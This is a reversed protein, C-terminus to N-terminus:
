SRAGFIASGPRVMNAGNEIATVYDASMGMSLVSTTINHLKNQFIDIFIRYTEEFYKKSNSFEGGVAGITMIGVPRINCFQSLDDFFDSAKEPLIGNKEDERASNIEILCESILNEKRSVRDLEAAARLNDLSQILSVRGVLKNIKNTQLAGIYDIALSKDYYDYKATLDQVRNEGVRCLGLSAAYNIVEATVNKTAACVKIEYSIGLRAKTNEINELLRMWNEYVASKYTDTLM